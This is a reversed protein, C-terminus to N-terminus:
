GRDDKASLQGRHDRSEKARKLLDRWKDAIRLWADRDALSRAREARDQAEAAQLLYYGESQLALKLRIVQQPASVAERAISKGIRHQAPNDFVQDASLPKRKLRDWRSRVEDWDDQVSM